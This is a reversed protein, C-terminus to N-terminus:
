KMANRNDKELFLFPSVIYKATRINKIFIVFYGMLKSDIKYSDKISKIVIFKSIEWVSWMDEFKGM